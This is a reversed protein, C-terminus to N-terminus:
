NANPDLNNFRELLKNNEALLAFFDETQEAPVPQASPLKVRM